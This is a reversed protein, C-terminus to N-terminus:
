KRGDYYMALTLVSGVSRAGSLQTTSVNVSSSPPIFIPFKLMKKNNIGNSGLMAFIAGCVNSLVDVRNITVTLVTDTLDGVDANIFLQMAIVNGQDAEITQEKGVFITGAGIQFLIDERYTFLKADFTRAKVDFPNFYYIHLHPTIQGTASGVNGTQTTLNWTQGEKGEIPVLQQYSSPLEQRLSSLQVAKYIDINGIRVTLLITDAVVTFQRLVVDMWVAIGRFTSISGSTSRSSQTASPAFTNCTFGQILLPLKTDMM